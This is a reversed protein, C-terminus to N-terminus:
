HMPHQLIAHSPPMTPPPTPPSSAQVTPTPPWLAQAADHCMTPAAAPCAPYYPPMDTLIQSTPSNNPHHSKCPSARTNTARRQATAAALLPPALNSPELNPLDQM